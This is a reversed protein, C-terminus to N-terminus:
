RLCRWPTPLYAVMALAEHLGGRRGSRRRPARRPWGCEPVFDFKPTSAESGLGAAGGPHVAELMGGPKQRVQAEERLVRSRDPSLM